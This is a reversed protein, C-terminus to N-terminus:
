NCKGIIINFIEKILTIIQKVKYKIQSYKTVDKPDKLQFLVTKRLDKIEGFGHRLPAVSNEELINNKNTQM